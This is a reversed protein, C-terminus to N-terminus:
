KLQRWLHNIEDNDGGFLMYTENMLMPRLRKGGATVSYNMAEMVKASWGYAEPNPLYNGLIKEIEQVKLDLEENFNM